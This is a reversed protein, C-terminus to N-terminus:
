ANLTTARSLKSCLEITRQLHTATSEYGDQQLQEPPTRTKPLRDKPVGALDPFTEYFILSRELKEQIDLLTSIQDPSLRNQFMDLFAIVQHNSNRLNGALKRWSEEQLSIIQPYIAPFIIELATRVVEKNIAKIDGTKFVSEDVIDPPIRLGNRIGSIVGNLLILLRNMVRVNTTQWRRKEHTELVWNVYSITLIIGIIETALNVFFGDAEWLLNM